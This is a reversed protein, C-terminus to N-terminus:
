KASWLAVNSSRISGSLATKLIDASALLGQALGLMQNRKPNEHIGAEEAEAGSSLAPVGYCTWIIVVALAPSIATAAFHRFDYGNSCMYRVVDRVPVTGGEERLPIGSEAGAM